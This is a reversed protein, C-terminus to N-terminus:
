QSSVVDKPVHGDSAPVFVLIDESLPLVFSRVIIERGESAVQVTHPGEALESIDVRLSVADRPFFDPQPLFRDVLRAVTGQRELRGVQRGDISM